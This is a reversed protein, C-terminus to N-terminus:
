TRSSVTIVVCLAAFATPSVAVTIGARVGIM